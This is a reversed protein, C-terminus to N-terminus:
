HTSGLGCITTRKQLRWIFANIFRELIRETVRDGLGCPKLVRFIM